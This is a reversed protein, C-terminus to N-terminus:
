LRANEKLFYDYTKKIGEYLSVAPKFGFKKIKSSDLFRRKMGDPKTVDFKIRGKFGVIKQILRSLEIISIEEGMGINIVESEEYKNMLLYIADALDDIYVFERLAGGTGWLEVEPLGETKAIHMKRILAPIVHSATPNFDDHPGYTNAPICSIFDKKYQLNIKECLKIGAIKAIAFGENTAEPLGTLLFKERMPQDSNTPYACGCSIYLLKKVGHKFSSWILNNQIMLNEYLFESPYDMNAKIGGVKAAAIIVYEPKNEKFFREVENQQILNLEQKKRVLLGSFGEYIYKRLIASGILGEHGAIYLRSKKNM